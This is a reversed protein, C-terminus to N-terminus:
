IRRIAKKARKIVEPWGGVELAETIRPTPDVDGLDVFLKPQYFKEAFDVYRKKIGPRKKPM